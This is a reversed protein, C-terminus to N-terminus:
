VFHNTIRIIRVKILEAQEEDFQFNKRQYNLEGEKHKLKQKLLMFLQFSNANDTWSQLEDKIKSYYYSAAPINEIELTEDM